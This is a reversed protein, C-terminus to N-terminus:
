VINKVSGIVKANVKTLQSMTIQLMNKETTASRVVVTADTKAAIHAADVFTGLPPTDVIVIDFKSGARELFESFAKSNIVDVPDNIKEECDLFYFGDDIKIVAEDLSCKGALYGAVGTSREIMMSRGLQPHRWDGDVLLVKKGQKSLESSLTTAIFSKGENPVSSTVTLTKISENDELINMISKLKESTTLFHSRYSAFINEM